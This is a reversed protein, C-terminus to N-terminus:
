RKRVPPLSRLARNGFPTGTGRRITFRSPPYMAVVKVLYLGPRHPTSNALALADKSTRSRDSTGDEVDKSATTVGFTWEPLPGNTTSSALTASNGSAVDAATLGGNEDFKYLALTFPDSVHDNQPPFYVGSYRVVSSIRVDDIRGSFYQNMMGSRAINLSSGGAQPAASSPLTSGTWIDGNVSVRFTRNPNLLQYSGSVHNWQGVVLPHPQGAPTPSTLKGREAGTTNAFTAFVVEGNQTLRLEYGGAKGSRKSVISQKVSLTTPRIWAEVTIDGTPSLTGSTGARVYNQGSYALSWDGPDPPPDVFDGTEILVKYATTSAYPLVAIRVGNLADTYTEGPLWRSGDDNAIGNVTGDVVRAPAPVNTNVKHIVIGEGPLHGDYGAFKRAEVTYFHGAVTGFPIKAALCNTPSVPQALREIVVETQTNAGAVFLRGPPIWNQQDRNFSITNVPTCGYNPLPDNCVGGNAGYESMVDYFSGYVDRALPDLYQTSSHLFGLSHGAEHAWVQMRGSDNQALFTVGYTKPVNDNWQTPTARTGGTTKALGETNFVIDIGGYSPFYVEPDAAKMAHRLAKSHNFTLVTSGTPYYYYASRNEELTFWHPTPSGAVVSNSMTIANYSSESWFNGIEVLEGQYFSAPRPELAAFDAFKCMIVVRRQDPPLPAAPGSPEGPALSVSSVVVYPEGNADFLKQGTVSLRKRILNLRGGIGDFYSDDIKLKLKGLAADDISDQFDWEKQSPPTDFDPDIWVPCYEGEFTEEGGSFSSPGDLAGGGNAGDQNGLQAHVLNGTM